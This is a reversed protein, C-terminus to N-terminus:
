VGLLKSWTKEGVIGDAVLSKDKQYQKVSKETGTGFDGDAGYGGCNYGEYILMRQLAKVSNGKDGKGLVPLKVECVEQNTKETKTETKDPKNVSEAPQTGGLATKIRQKFEEWESNNKGVMQAPCQKGTVDYHRLVHADVEAAEIGMKKCLAVVLKVTRVKTTESVRYNGSCCMEVGLSNSNQCKPHWPNDAGCHWARCNMPVSLYIDQEDVFFHSSCKRNAGAFYKANNVALDADNGTYHVVIYQVDRSSLETYNSDHALLEKVPLELSVLKEKIKM